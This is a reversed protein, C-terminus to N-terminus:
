ARRARHPPHPRPAHLLRTRPAPVGPDPRDPHALLRHPHQRQPRRVPRDGRGGAGRVDRRVPRRRHEHGVPHQGARRHGARLPDPAPQAAPLGLGAARLQGHEGAVGVPVGARELRHHHRDLLQGRPHLDDPGAQHHQRRPPRGAVEAALQGGGLPQDVLDRRAGPHLALDPHGVPQERGHERRAPPQGDRGPVGRGEEGREADLLEVPIGVDVPGLQDPQQAPEPQAAEPANPASSGCSTAERNPASATSQWRSARPRSGRGGTRRRGGSSSVTSISSSGGTSRTSAAAKAARPSASRSCRVRAPCPSDQVRSPTAARVAEPSCSCRTHRHASGSVGAPVTSRTRQCSSAQSVRRRHGSRRVAPGARHGPQPQDGLLRDGRARQLEPQPALDPLGVLPGAPRQDPHLRQQPRLRHEGRHQGPPRSGPSRTRSTGHPSSRSSPRRPRPRTLRMRPAAGAPGPGAPRRRDLRRACRGPREGAAPRRAPAAPDAPRRLPSVATAGPAGADSWVSGSRSRAIAGSSSVPRIAGAPHGGSTTRRVPRTEARSTRAAPRPAGAACPVPCRGDGGRGVLRRRRGGARRDGGVGVPGSGGAGQGPRSGAGDGAVTGGSGSGASSTSAAPGAPRARRARAATRAGADGRPRRRRAAPRRPSPRATAPAAASTTARRRSRAAPQLQEARLAGREQQGAAVPPPPDGADVVSRGPGAPPIDGPGSGTAAPM